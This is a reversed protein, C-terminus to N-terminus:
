AARDRALRIGSFQWFTHPYFFNRYSARVHGAPTVAAGGRLVYQNCMFKGNYEGLAGAPARYGPYPAYPSRTWEWVDGFLQVPREVASQLAPAPHLLGAELFNGSQPAQSAALEWEAETPLRAGSWTAFADAEYYSVHCVPGAPNLRRLGGLTFEFWAGDIERWYHPHRAAERQVFAWGDSLWLAPNRYGGDEVFALYEANAVLRAGLAHPEVLARHRPRENDFAFGDGAGILGEGGDCDIWRHPVPSREPPAACARYVPALPNCSLLHKVDMLLLEQHQQEHQIGLELVELTASPLAAPTGLLAGIAQDVFRRYDLVEPLAPRTLLGRSSRPYQAGIANYYSNFLYRYQPHFPRYGRRAQALVFTEFYWTTHALHWKAPSADPMSQVAADEASLPECLGVTADRVRQYREALLDSPANAPAAAPM